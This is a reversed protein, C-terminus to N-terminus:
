SLRRSGPHGPLADGMDPEDQFMIFAARIAACPVAVYGLLHKHEFLENKYPPNNTANEAACAKATNFPANAAVQNDYTLLIGTVAQGFQFFVQVQYTRRMKPGNFPAPAGPTTLFRDAPYKSQESM